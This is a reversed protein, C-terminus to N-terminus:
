LARRLHLMRGISRIGNRRVMNITNPQRSGAEFRITEIGAREAREYMAWTLDGQLPDLRFGPHVAEGDVELVTGDIIRTSCFGVVTNEHIAVLQLSAEPDGERRHFRSRMGFIRHNVSGGIWAAWAASIADLHAAEVQEIRVDFRSKIRGRIRRRVTELEAQITERVVEYRDFSEHTEFGATRLMAEHHVAAMSTVEADLATAGATRAATIARDLLATGIAESFTDDCGHLDLSVVGTAAFDLMVAAFIEGEAVACWGFDCRHNRFWKPCLRALAPRDLSGAEVVDFHDTTPM